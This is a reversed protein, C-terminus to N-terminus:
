IDDDRLAKFFAVSEPADWDLEGLYRAIIKSDKSVILSTPLGVSAFEQVLALKPDAYLTLGEIGWEKLTRDAMKIGGRDANVAIVEFDDNGLQKQLAALDKMEARCPACWSAWFNILLVKGKFDRLYKGSKDKLQVYQDKLPQAEVMPEVEMLVGKQYPALREAPTLPVSTEGCAQLYLAGGIVLTLGKIFTRISM